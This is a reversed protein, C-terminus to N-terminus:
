QIRTIAMSIKANLQFVLKRDGAAEAQCQEVYLPFVDSILRAVTKEVVEASLKPSVRADEQNSNRIITGKGLPAPFIEVFMSYTGDTIEATEPNFTTTM